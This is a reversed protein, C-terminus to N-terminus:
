SSFNRPWKETKNEYDNRNVSKHKVRKIQKFRNLHVKESKQRTQSSMDNMKEFASLLNM